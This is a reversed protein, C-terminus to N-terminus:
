SITVACRRKEGLHESEPRWGVPAVERLYLRAVTHRDIEGVGIVFGAVHVERELDGLALEVIGELADDFTAEWVPGIRATGFGVRDVVVITAAPDVEAIGVRRDAPLDDRPGVVRPRLLPPRPRTGVLRPDRGTIPGDGTGGARREFGVRVDERRRVEVTINRRRNGSLQILCRRVELADFVERGVREQQLCDLGETVLQADLLGDFGLRDKATVLEVRGAQGVALSQRVTRRLM